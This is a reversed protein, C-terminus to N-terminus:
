PIKGYLWDLTNLDNAWSFDVGNSNHYPWGPFESTFKKFYTALICVKEKYNFGWSDELEVFKIPKIKPTFIDAVISPLWINYKPVFELQWTTKWIGDTNFKVRCPILIFTDPEKFGRPEFFFQIRSNGDSVRIV